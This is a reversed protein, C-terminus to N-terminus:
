TAVSSVTGVLLKLVNPKKDTFDVSTINVERMMECSAFHTKTTNENYLKSQKVISYM